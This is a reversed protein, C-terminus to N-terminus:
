CHSHDYYYKLLHNSWRKLHFIITYRPIESSESDILPDVSQKRRSLGVGLGVGLAVVVLIVIALAILVNRTRSKQSPPVQDSPFSSQARASNNDEIAEPPWSSYFVQAGLGPAM